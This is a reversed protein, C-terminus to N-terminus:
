WRPQRARVLGRVCLVGLVCCELFLEGTLQLAYDPSVPIPVFRLAIATLMLM